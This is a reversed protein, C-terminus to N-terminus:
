VSRVLVLVAFKFAPLPPPTINVGDAGAWVAAVPIRVTAPDVKLRLVADEGLAPPAPKSRSTKANADGPPMPVPDAFIPVEVKEFLWASEVALPPPMM